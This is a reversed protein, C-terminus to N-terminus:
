GFAVVECMYIGFNLLFGRVRAKEIPFEYIDDGKERDIAMGHKVAIVRYNWDMLRGVLIGGVIVGSGGALYALGVQFNNFHYIPGYIVLLGGCNMQEPM